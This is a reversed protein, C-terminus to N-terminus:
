KRGATLREQLARLADMDGAAALKAQEAWTATTMSRRGGQAKILADIEAQSLQALAAFSTVGGKVLIDRYYPGIGEIMTLDDAVSEAKKSARRRPAPEPAPPPAADAAPEAAKRGARKRPAQAAPAAPTVDGPEAPTEVTHPAPVEVPAEGAAVAVEAVVPPEEAVDGGVAPTGIEPAAPAAAQAPPEVVVAPPAPAPSVAAPRAPAEDTQPLARARARRLEEEAQRIKERAEQEATRRARRDDAGWWWWLALAVLAFLLAGWLWSGNRDQNTMYNIGLLVAIVLAGVGLASKTSKDM